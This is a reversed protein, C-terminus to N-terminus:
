IPVSAFYTLLRTLFHLESKLTTTMNSFSFSFIVGISEPRNPLRTDRLSVRLPETVGAAESPYARVTRYARLVLYGDFAQFHVVVSVAWMFFESIKTPLQAISYLYPTPFYYNLFRRMEIDSRLPTGIRFIGRGRLLRRANRCRSGFRCTRLSLRHTM